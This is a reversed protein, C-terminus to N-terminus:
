AGSCQSFSPYEGLQQCLELARQSAKEVEASTYGKSAILPTTLGILLKVEELMRESSSPLSNLLALGKLFHERAEIDASRESAARGARRWYRVAQEALGAETCHHAILEPPAEIRPSSESTLLAAVNQHLEKRRTKLLAEYAADRILAHKFQYKTEPPTGRAYLLDAQTLSRLHGELENQGISHIEKLLEYSFENGLVAGVQLTERAPGLRDLRAMLSDHLTAPIKRGATTGEASEVIARTLEEVFLPVGGTREIVVNLTEDALKNQAAVEVVMSRVDNNSLGSLKVQSLDSEMQWSSYFEPRATYIQLLPAESVRKGLSRLFELTSPDAWHLDEIAIIRPPGAEAGRLIV